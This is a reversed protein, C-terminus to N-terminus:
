LNFKTLDLMYQGSHAGETTMDHKKRYPVVYVSYQYGLGAYLDASTSKTSTLLQPSNSGINMAYVNYSTAGPVASWRLRFTQVLYGRYYVKSLM